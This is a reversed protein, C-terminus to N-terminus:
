VLKERLARSVAESVSHVRLSRYLRRIHTRVTDISVGLDDAVQKYSRGECLCRLVDLERPSLRPTPPASASAPAEDNAAERTYTHIMLVLLM